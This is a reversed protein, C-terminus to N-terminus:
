EDSEGQGGTHHTPVRIKRSYDADWLTLYTKNDQNFKECAAILEPSPSLFDSMGEYGDYCIREIIDRADLQRVEPNCAFVWEPWNDEKEGAISDLLESIDSYYGDGWGGRNFCECYVPGIYTETVDEATAIRKAYKEAMEKQWRASRCQDCESTGPYKGIEKGCGCLLPRCCAEASERTNKNPVEGSVYQLTLRRCKGCAWVGTPKGNENYLEFANM